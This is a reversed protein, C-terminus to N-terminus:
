GVVHAHEVDEDFAFVNAFGVAWLEHTQHLLNKGALFQEYALEQDQSTFM